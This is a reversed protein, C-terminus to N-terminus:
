EGKPPLEVLWINRYRVPNGHDQLRINAPRGSWRAEINDHITVGNHLVTMRAENGEKAAQFTVDYTQWQLPPACMNVLPDTRPYIGGGGKARPKLGYCDLVQVENSHVYVGSNGRGQERAEPKYPIRFEVHLRLNGFARRTAISGGGRTTEMAGDVIKWRVPGVTGRRGPREWENFDSGDFLVIAGAPPEAGLTPSIRVVKELVFTGGYRSSVKGTFKGGEIAGEWDPGRYESIDGWGRFRVTDSEREGELSAIMEANTDFEPLLSAHYWDKGLAVVQAVLPETTKRGRQKFYGRWDGMFPDAAEMAERSERVLDPDPAAGCVSCV